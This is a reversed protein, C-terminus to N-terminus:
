PLSLPPASALWRLTCFWLEQPHERAYGDFWRGASAAASAEVIAPPGASDMGLAQGVVIDIRGADNWRAVAPVLRARTLRALAFPGRALPVSRGLCPVGTTM